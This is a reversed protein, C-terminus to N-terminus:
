GTIAFLVQATPIDDSAIIPIGVPTGAVAAESVSFTGTVFVRPPSIICTPITGVWNAVTPLAGNIACTLSANGVLTYGTKCTFTASRGPFVGTAFGDNTCDDSVQFNDVFADRFSYVGAYGSALQNDAATMVYRGNVSFTHFFPGVNVTLSVWANPAVYLPLPAEALELVYTDLVLDCTVVQKQVDVYYRYYANRSESIRYALGAKISTSVNASITLSDALVNAINSYRPYVVADADPTRTQIQMMNDIFFVNKGVPTRSPQLTTWDNLQLLGATNFDFFALDFSCKAADVPMSLDPCVPQCDLQPYKWSEGGCINILNGRYPQMGSNCGQTCVSGWVATNDCKGSVPFVNVSNQSLCTNPAYVELECVGFGKSGPLGDSGYAGAGTKITVYRGRYGQPINVSALFDPGQNITALAYLVPLQVIADEYWNGTNGITIFTDAGDAAWDGRGYINIHKVDTEIGLDVTFWPNVDTDLGFACGSVQWNNGRNGDVMFSGVAPLKPHVQGNYASSTNTPKGLAVNVLLNNTVNNWTALALPALTTASAIASSPGWGAATSAEVQFSYSQGPTLGYVVASTTTGNVMRTSGPKFYNTSRVAFNDFKFIGRQGTNGNRVFMGPRVNPMFLTGGFAVSDPMITSFALWDESPSFRYYARWHPPRYVPAKALNSAAGTANTIHELRLYVDNHNTPTGDAILGNLSNAWILGTDYFCGVGGCSTPAEFVIQFQSGSNWLRLALYLQITNLKVDFLCIGGFMNDTAGFSWDSYDMMVHGEIALDQNLDINAPWNNKFAVPATGRAGNSGWSNAGAGADITLINEPADFRFFSEVPASTPTAYIPASFNWATYGESPGTALITLEYDSPVVPHLRYGTITPYYGTATPATWSVLMSSNTIQSITLGTPAGPAAPSCPTNPGVLLGDVSCFVPKGLTNDNFGPYCSYVNATGAGTSISKSIGLTNIVPCAPFTITVIESVASSPTTGGYAVLKTSSVPVLSMYARGAPRTGLTVINALWQNSAYDFYDIGTLQLGTSDYGGYVVMAGRFTTAAHGYRGPPENLQRNAFVKLECIHMIPDDGPNLERRVILFRGTAKCQIDIYQQSAPVPPTTDAVTACMESAKYDLSYGLYFRFNRNRATCCDLRPWFRITNVAYAQGLDVWLQPNRDTTARTATCTKPVTGSVGANDLGDVARAADGGDWGTETTSQWAKKGQAVEAYGSLPRWTWPTKKFVQLECVALYNYQPVMLWVYQFAPTNPPIPIDIRPIVADSLGLPTPILISTPSDYSGNTGLTNGVYVQWGSNRDLCCDLRPSYSIQDATVPSGLDVRVWPNWELNSHTCRNITFRRPDTANYRCAANNVVDCGNFINTVVNDTLPIAGNSGWSPNQSSLAGPKNLALNTMEADVSDAFGVSSTVWLDTVATGGASGGYQYVSTGDLGVTLSHSHVPRPSTATNSLTGVSYWTLTGSVSGSVADVMTPYGLGPALVSMDSLANGASSSYGGTLLICATTNGPYTCKPVYALAPFIRASPATGTATITSMTNLDANYQSLIATDAGTASSGGFM